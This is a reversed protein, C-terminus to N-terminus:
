CDIIENSLTKSNKITKCADVFSNYYDIDDRLKRIASILEEKSKHDVSLGVGWREVLDSLYTNKAVIIPIECVISEYLKNPLAIKVNANDADYVSYVCDVKGYLGAIEKEYAYKGTFTINSMNNCYNKIEEEIEESGAAGAFLVNCKLNNAADVLLKMQNIYRIGGVFGITFTGENKRKYNRFVSEEPANPIFVTKESSYFSKYFTRYFMPSTVILLDVSKICKREQKKVLENLFQRFSNKSKEIFSERLDAVEYIICVDPNKRKYRKAILLSDLGACFIINPSIEDIKRSASIQFKNSVTARKLLHSSPPLDIDYISYEIDQIQPDWIDRSKRRTCIVNVYGYKKFLM